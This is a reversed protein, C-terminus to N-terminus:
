FPKDFEIFRGKYKKEIKETESKKRRIGLGHFDFFVAKDVKQILSSRTTFLGILKGQKGVDVDYGKKYVAGRSLSDWYVWPYYRKKGFFYDVIGMRLRIEWVQM